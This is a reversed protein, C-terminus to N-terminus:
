LSGVKIGWLRAANTSTCTLKYKDISLKLNPDDLVPTITSTASYVSAIYLGRGGYPHSSILLWGGNSDFTYVTTMRDNVGLDINILFNVNSKLTSVDSGLDQVIYANKKDAMPICVKVLDGVKYTNISKTKVKTSTGAYQVIYGDSEVSSVVGTYTRDFKAKEILEKVKGILGRAFIQLATYNENM